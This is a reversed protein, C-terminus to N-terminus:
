IPHMTCDVVARVSLLPLTATIWAQAFEIMVPQSLQATRLALCLGAWRASPERAHLLALLRTTWKPLHPSPQLAEESLVTLAYKVNEVAQTDSATQTHLLARLPHWVAGSEAAM